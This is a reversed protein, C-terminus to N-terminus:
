RPDWRRLNLRGGDEKGKKVVARLALNGSAPRRKEGRKTRCSLFYEGKRGKASDRARSPSPRTGSTKGERATGSSCSLSSFTPGKEKKSSESKEEALFQYLYAAGRSKAPAENTDKERKKKKGRL